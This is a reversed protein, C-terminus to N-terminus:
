HYFFFEVVLLFFYKKAVCHVRLVIDFLSFLIVPSLVKASLAATDAAKRPHLVSLSQLIQRICSIINFVVNNERINRNSSADMNSDTKNKDINNYKHKFM